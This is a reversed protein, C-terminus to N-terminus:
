AWSENIAFVVGKEKMLSEFMEIELNTDTDFKNLTVVFPVNFINKMNEIHKELNCFGLKLADINELKLNEKSVGGHLKLAPITAVIVVCAPKCNIERCKFDIFKEAGLDAGFGAETIVYDARQMAINTAMVSNCGHAINAFPGLHILAPTGKLTQVLNPKLADTLLIAMANEVKLDRAFIPKGSKDFAILINGLRVKLDDISKSMCLIAMIESAATINFKDKRKIGKDIEVEINRLARDNLDLCRNFVVKDIDINLANGQFIHNDIASCLLNNASTIAHFDGTFHLNINEMPVVQSFGGGTAGGKMGFVPGM